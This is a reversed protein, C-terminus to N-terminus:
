ALGKNHLLSSAVCYSILSAISVKPLQPTALLSSTANEVAAHPWPCRANLHPPCAPTHALSVVDSCVNPEWAPPHASYWPPYLPDRQHGSESFVGWRFKAWEALLVRGSREGSSDSVNASKLFDVGLQIFNGPKGCGGSQQTWPADRFVAHPSDVIIQPNQTTIPPEEGATPPPPICSRAAWHPPLQITVSGLGAMGDTAKYMAFSLGRLSTQLSFFVCKLFLKLLM